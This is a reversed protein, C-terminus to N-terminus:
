NQLIGTLEFDLQPFIVSKINKTAPPLGVYKGSENFYYVIIFEDLPEMIWYERVGNEQYLEFKDKM